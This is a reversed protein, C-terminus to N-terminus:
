SSSASSRPSRRAKSFQVLFGVTPPVAIRLAQPLIVLRLQLLTASRWRAARRGNAARSPRSAAAGSRASSPAPTSRSRSRRPSGPTSARARPPQRRFLRPLAADAAAHGPVGQHLRHRRAACRAQEAVRLLAILLGVIGGGVFALLALLVTWRMALSCSCFRASAHIRPDRTRAGAARVAAPRDLRVDAQFASRCRWISAPRRHFLVRVLPFQPRSITDAVATLEEASIVSVVSSASCSCSSSAASRRSCPRLAPMLVVFRFIQCRGSASRAAPRSRAPRCPRSAPACSRPRTPASISSWAGAARGTRRRAPPRAVAPRLYLLLLQVLFPTNRIAEVYGHVLARVWAAARRRASRAWCASSSARAGHGPGVAAAHALRGLLLQGRGALRHRVPLRLEDSIM